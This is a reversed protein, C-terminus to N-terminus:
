AVQAHSSPKDPLFAAGGVSGVQLTIELELSEDSEIKLNKKRYSVFGLSEVVLTYSGDELSGFQFKGEESTNITRTENTREHLLTIKANAIVSQNIDLVTGSITSRSDQSRIKTRKIKVKTERGQSESGYVPIRIGASTFLSLVVGFAASAVRSVSRRLARLGVPCDKTLITGDIRRYFKTCLRGETSAILAEAQAKTMMSINYVNLNCHQCFRVKDNGQMSDWDASCPTAVYLRDLKQIPATMM